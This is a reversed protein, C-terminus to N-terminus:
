DQIYYNSVPIVMISYHLKDSTILGRVGHCVYAEDLSYRCCSWIFRNNNIENGGIAKLMKNIPCNDISSTNYKINNLIDYLDELTPLYWSGSPLVETGYKICYDAAPSCSIGDQDTFEAIKKTLEFGSKIGINGYDTPCVVDMARMCNMWGEEGEGYKIRLSACYDQGDATTGLYSSKNIPYYRKSLDTIDSNVGGEYENLGTSKGYYDIARDMSLIAGYPYLSGDKRRLKAFFQINNFFYNSNKAFDGTFKNYFQMVQEYSHSVLLKQEKVYAHWKQKVMKPHTLVVANIADAVQQLSTATYKVVVTEYNNWTPAGYFQITGEHEAGDLNAGTIEVVIRDAWAKSANNKAIIKVERGYRAGVVGQIEYKNQNLDQLFFSEHTIFLIEKTSRNGVVADGIKPVKVFVNKVM